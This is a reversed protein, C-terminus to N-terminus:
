AAANESDKVVAYIANTAIGCTNKDKLFKAVGGQGWSRGWLSNVLWYHDSDKMQKYGEVLMAHTPTRSGCFRNGASYTGSRYFQLVSDSADVAVVLPGFKETAVQMQIEDGAPVNRFEIEKDWLFQLATRARKEEEAMTLNGQELEEDAFGRPTMYSMHNHNDVALRRVVHEPWGEKAKRVPFEFLGPVLAAQSTPEPGHLSELLMKHGSAAIHGFGGAPLPVDGGTERLYLADLCAAKAAALGALWPYRSNPEAPLMMDLLRSYGLTNPQVLGQQRWNVDGWRIGRDKMGPRYELQM